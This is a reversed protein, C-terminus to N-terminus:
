KELRTGLVAMFENMNPTRLRTVDVPRGINYPITMPYFHEGTTGFNMGTARHKLFVVPGHEWDTIRVAMMQWVDDGGYLKYIATSALGCFGKSWKNDTFKTGVFRDHVVPDKYMARLTAVIHPLSYQARYIAPTAAEIKTARAVIKSTADEYREPYTKMTM